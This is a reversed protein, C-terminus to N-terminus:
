FTLAAIRSVSGEGIFRVSRFLPDLISIELFLRGEQGM